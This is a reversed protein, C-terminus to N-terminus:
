YGLWQMSNLITMGKRLEFYIVKKIVASSIISSKDVYSDVTVSIKKLKGYVSFYNNSHKIIVTNGMPKLFGSFVVIGPAISRVINENAIINIGSNKRRYTNVQQVSGKIPKSINKKLWTFKPTHVYHKANLSSIKISVVRELENKLKHWKSKNLVL